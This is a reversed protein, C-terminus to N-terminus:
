AKDLLAQVRQKVILRDSLDLANRYEAAQQDALTVDAANRMLAKTALLTDRPCNEIAAMLMARADAAHDGSMVLDALGAALADHASLSDDLLLFAMARGYGMRHRLIHSVGMDPALGLRAFASVFRVGPRAAVVDCSAALALGGGAVTGEVLAVTPIPLQAIRAVATNLEPLQREAISRVSDARAFEHIDGGVSFFRGEAEILLGAVQPNREIGDLLANLETGLKWTAPNTGSHDCLTIVAVSGVQNARLKRQEDM